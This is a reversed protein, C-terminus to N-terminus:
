WVRPNHKLRYINRSARDQERRIHKAERGSVVGDALARNWVRAIRHQEARLIRAESRTLSGGCVGQDIRRDQRVQRWPVTGAVAPSAAFLLAVAVAAIMARM